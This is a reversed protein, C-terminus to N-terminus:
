PRFRKKFLAENQGPYVAITAFPYSTDRGIFGNANGVTFLQIAELGAVAFPPTDPVGGASAAMEMFSMKMIGGEMTRYTIIQQASGTATGANTGPLNIPYVSVFEAEFTGPTYHWLEAYDITNNAASPYLPQMRAAHADMYTSLSATAGSRLVIQIASFVTGPVPSTLLNCNYRASHQIPTVGTPTTTYFLRIEYPGPFNLVPM